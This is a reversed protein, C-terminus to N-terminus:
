MKKRVVVRKKKMKKEEMSLMAVTSVMIRAMNPSVAVM